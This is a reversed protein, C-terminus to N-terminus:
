GAYHFGLRFGHHYGHHYSHSYYHPSRKEVRPKDFAEDRVELSDELASISDPSGHALNVLLLAVLFLIQFNIFYFSPKIESILFCQTYMFILVDPIENFVDQSDYGYKVVNLLM